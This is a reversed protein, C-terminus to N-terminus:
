KDGSSGFGSIGRETDDLEFVEEIMPAVFPLIIMQCVKDGYSINFPPGSNNRNWLVAKLENRFDPDILGATNGLILGKSGLGSRPLLLGAFGELDVAFGLGVMKTEGPGICATEAARFDLAAANGYARSPLPLDHNGIRQIKMLGFREL